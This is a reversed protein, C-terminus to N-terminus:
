LWSFNCLPLFLFLICGYLNVADLPFIYNRPQWPKYGILENNLLCLGGRMQSEFWIYQNANGLLQIKINTYKLGADFTLKSLTFYYAPNLNYHELSMKWFLEFVKALLLMGANQYLKPSPAVIFLATFKKHTTTTRTALPHVLWFLKLHKLQLCSSKKCCMHPTLIPIPSFEMVDCCIYM